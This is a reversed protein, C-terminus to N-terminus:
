FPFSVWHNICITNWKVVIPVVTCCCFPNSLSLDLINMMLSWDLVSVKWPVQQETWQLRNQKKSCQWLTLSVLKKRDVVQIYLSTDVCVNINAIFNSCVNFPLTHTPPFLHCKQMWIRSFNNAKTFSYM